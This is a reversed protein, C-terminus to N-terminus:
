HALLLPVELEHLAQHTNGAFLRERLRSRGFAGMVVLDPKTARVHEVLAHSVFQDERAIVKHRADIEHHGLATVLTRGKRAAEESSGSEVVAVEVAAGHTLMPLAARVARGAAPVEDWAVLVRGPSIPTADSRCTILAPAGAEILAGDLLRADTGSLYGSPSGVFLVLDAYTARRAITSEVLALQEFHASAYGANGREELMGQVTAQREDVARIEDTYSRSWAYASDQGISTASLVPAVGVVAVDLTARHLEAFALLPELTKTSEHMPHIALLSRYHM